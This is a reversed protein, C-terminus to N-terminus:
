INVAYPTAFSRRTGSGMSTRDAMSVGNSGYVSRITSGEEIITTAQERQKEPVDELKVTQLLFNIGSRYKRALCMELM